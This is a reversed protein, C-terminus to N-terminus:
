IGGRAAGTSTNLELLAERLIFHFDGDDALLVKTAARGEAKVQKRLHSRGPWIRQM